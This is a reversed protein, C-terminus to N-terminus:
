AGCADRPAFAEDDGTASGTAELSAQQRVLAVEERYVSVDRPATVGLRVYKGRVELVTIEIREDVVITQGPKRSLLLM